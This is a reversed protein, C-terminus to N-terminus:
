INVAFAEPFLGGYTKRHRSGRIGFGRELRLQDLNSGAVKRIAIGAM